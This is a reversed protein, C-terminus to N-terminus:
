SVSPGIRYALYACAMAELDQLLVVLSAPTKIMTIDLVVSGDCSEMSFVFPFEVFEVLVFGALKPVSSFHAIPPFCMNVFIVYLLIAVDINKFM